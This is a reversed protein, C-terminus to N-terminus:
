QEKKYFQEMFKKAHAESMQGAHVKSDCWSQALMKAEPICLYLFTGILTIALSGLLWPKTYKRYKEVSLGSTVAAALMMLSVGGVIILVSIVDPANKCFTLVACEWYNM